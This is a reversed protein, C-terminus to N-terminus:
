ISEWIHRMEFLFFPSSGNIIQMFPVLQATNRGGINRRSGGHKLQSSDRNEIVNESYKKNKYPYCEM